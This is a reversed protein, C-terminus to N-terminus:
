GGVRSSLCSERSCSAAETPGAQRGASSGAGPLHQSSCSHWADLAEEWGPERHTSGPSSM